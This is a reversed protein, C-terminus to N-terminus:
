RLEFHDLRCFNCRLSPEPMKSELVKQQKILDPHDKSLYKPVLRTDATNRINEAQPRSLANDAWQIEKLNQKWLGILDIDDEKKVLLDTDQNEPSFNIDLMQDFNSVMPEFLPEKRRIGKNFELWFCRPCDDLLRLSINSLKDM